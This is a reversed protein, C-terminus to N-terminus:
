SRRSYPQIPGGTSVCVFDIGQRVLLTVVIGLGSNSLERCPYNLDEPDLKTDDM